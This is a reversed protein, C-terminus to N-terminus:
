VDLYLILMNKEQAHLHLYPEAVLGVFFVFKVLKPGNGLVLGRSYNLVADFEITQAVLHVEVAALVSLVAEDDLSEALVHFIRQGDDFQARTVGKM